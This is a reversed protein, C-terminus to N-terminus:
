HGPAVVRGLLQDASLFAAKGPRYHYLHLGLIKQYWDKAKDADRVHINCHGLYMRRNSM